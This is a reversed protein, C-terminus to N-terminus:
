GAESGDPKEDGPKGMFRFWRRRSSDGKDGAEVPEELTKGGSKLQKRLLEQHHRLEAQERGLRARELSLDLENQRFKAQWHAEIEEFRKRLPEPLQELSSVDRPMQGASLALLLSERLQVIMADRDRIAARAEDLTIADLDLPPLPEPITIEAHPASNDASAEADASLEANREPAGSSEPRSGSSSEAAPSAGGLLAAKQAEWWTNTPTKSGPSSAPAASASRSTAPATERGATQPQVGGACLERLETLQAEIRSLTEGPKVEDWNALVRKLDEFTPKHEHLWEPAAGGGTGALPRHGKDVGTRRLRDLQEAAQELRETLATVLQEKERLQGALATLQRASDGGGANAPPEAVATPGSSEAM